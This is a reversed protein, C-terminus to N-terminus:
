YFTCVHPDGKRATGARSLECSEALRDLHPTM